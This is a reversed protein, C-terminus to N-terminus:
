KKKVVKVVGEMWPHPLCRYRYEGEETFTFTFSDYMNLEPSSFSWNYATVTHMHDDLNIWTVTNNVGIVVTIYSPLFSHSYPLHGVGRPIIIVVTSQSDQPSALVLTSVGIALASIFAFLYFIKTSKKM